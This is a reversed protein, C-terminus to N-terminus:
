VLLPDDFPVPDAEKPRPKAPRRRGIQHLPVVEWAALSLTKREAGDKIYVDLSLRGECYVETGKTLKHALGEAKEGFIALRVWTSAEGEHDSDM